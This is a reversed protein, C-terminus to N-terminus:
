RRQQLFDEQLQEVLSKIKEDHLYAKIKEGSEKWDPKMYLINDWDEPFEELVSSYLRTLETELSSDMHYGREEPFRQDMAELTENSALLHENFLSITPLFYKEKDSLREVSDTLALIEALERDHYLMTLFELAYEKHKTNIYVSNEGSRYWNSERPSLFFSTFRGEKGSLAHYTNGSFGSCLFLDAQPNDLSLLEKEWLGEMEKALSLYADSEWFLVPLDKEMVLFHGLILKGMLDRGHILDFSAQYQHQHIIELLSPLDTFTEVVEKTDPIFVGITNGLRPNGAAFLKDGM